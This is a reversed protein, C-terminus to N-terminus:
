LHPYWSSFPGPAWDTLWIGPGPDPAITRLKWRIAHTPRLLSRRFNTYIRQPWVLKFLRTTDALDSRHVMTARIRSTGLERGVHILYDWSPGSRSDIFIHMATNRRWDLEEYFRVTLRVYPGYSSSEVRRIDFASSADDPDLEDIDASATQVFFAGVLILAVVLAVCGRLTRM